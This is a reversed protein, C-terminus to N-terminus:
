PELPLSSPRDLAIPGRPADRLLVRAADDTVTVLVSGDALRLAIPAARLPERGDASWAIVDAPGGLEPLTPERCARQAAGPLSAGACRTLADSGRARDITGAAVGAALWRATAARVVGAHPPDIWRLPDPGDACAGAGLAALAIALNARIWPDRSRM